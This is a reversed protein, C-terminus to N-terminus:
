IGLFTSGSGAEVQTFKIGKSDVLMPTAYYSKYVYEAVTTDLGLINTSTSDLKNANEGWAYVKNDKCLAVSTASGGSIPMPMTTAQSIGALLVSGTLLLKKLYMFKIEKKILM